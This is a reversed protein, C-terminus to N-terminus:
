KITEYTIYVLVLFIRFYFLFSYRSGLILRNIGDDIQVAYRLRIPSFVNGVYTVFRPIISDSEGEDETTEIKREDAISM